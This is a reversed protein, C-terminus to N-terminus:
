KIIKRIHAKTLFHKRSIERICRLATSLPLLNTRSNGPPTVTTKILSYLVDMLASENALLELLQSSAPDIPVSASRQCIEEIGDSLCLNEKETRKANVVNIEKLLLNIENNLMLKERNLVSEGENFTSNTKLISEMEENFQKLQEEISNIVKRKLVERPSSSDSQAPQASQAAYNSITSQTSPASQPSQAPVCPTYNSYSSNANMYNQNPPSINNASAVNQNSPVRAYEASVIPLQYAFLNQLHSLLEVLRLQRLGDLGWVLGNGDVNDTVRIVLNTKSPDPRIWILPLESPYLLPLCIELPVELVRGHNQQSVVPISGVLNM